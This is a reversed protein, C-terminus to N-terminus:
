QSTSKTLEPIHLYDETERQMSKAPNVIKESFLARLVSESQGSNNVLGEIMKDRLKRSM